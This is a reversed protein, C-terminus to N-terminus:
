VGFYRMISVFYGSNDAVSKSALCFPNSSAGLGGAWVGEARFGNASGAAEHLTKPTEGVM